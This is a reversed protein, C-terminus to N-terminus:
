GLEHASEISRVTAPSATAAPRPSTLGWPRATPHAKGCVCLYIHPKLHKRQWHLLQGQDRFIFAARGVVPVGGGKHGCMVCAVYLRGSREFGLEEPDM